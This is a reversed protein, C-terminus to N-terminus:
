ATTDLAEVSAYARAGFRASAHRDAVERFYADRRRAVCGEPKAHPVVLSPELAHNLGDRLLVLAEARIQSVRSESVGLEDAIEAMPREELFYGQVVARLREPLAAVAAVLNQMQERQEVVQEPLPSKSAIMEAFPNEPGAHLSLVNARAMDEDSREIEALTLGLVEAVKANDPQHGLTGALSTRAQEVERSRRRASRSAWDVQRLEDMIAGRIRTAAYRAFPLGRDPEFSRSATVLAALGASNLDGQDVHAPIRAMTERVIHAVLRVHDVALQDAESRPLRATHPPLVRM